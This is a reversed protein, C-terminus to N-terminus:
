GTAPRALEPDLGADTLAETRDIYLRWYVIKGDRFTMTHADRVEVEPGGGDGRFYTRILAVVRDGAPLLEFDRIETQEAGTLMMDLLSRLAEKGRYNRDTPLDPDYVECDDDYYPLVGEIGEDNFAQMLRRAIDVNSSM